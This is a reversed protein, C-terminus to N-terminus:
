RGYAIREVVENVRATVRRTWAVPSVRRMSSESVEIRDDGFPDRDPQESERNADAADVVTTM